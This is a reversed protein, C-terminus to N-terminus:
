NDTNIAPPVSEYTNMPFSAHAMSAREVTCHVILRNRAPPAIKQYELIPRQYVRPRPKTTSPM